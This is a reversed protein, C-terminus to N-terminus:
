TVDVCVPQVANNGYGHPNWPPREPQMAGSADTARSELCVNGPSEIRIAAEWTTLGNASAPPTCHAPEWHGRDVRVEVGAIAGSGSWAVGRVRLTGREIRAGQSPEIILSRVRQLRVPERELRAERKMEYHYAQTQFYGDFPEAVADIRALWKVSTMAYWGPVIARLPYGHVPSLPKGNMAYALVAGSERVSDLSLSREYHAPADRAELIGADAGRLVIERAEALPRAREILDILPIGIWEATSVAGYRWPEGPVSPDLATRGNGACELTAVIRQPPIAHLEDLTLALPNEFLGGLQLRWNAADIEPIGFHNRVYFHEKPTLDNAILAPLPVEANLPDARHVLLGADRAEGFAVQPDHVPRAEM